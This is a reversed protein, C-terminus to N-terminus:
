SIAEKMAQAVTELSCSPHKHLVDAVLGSRKWKVLKKALRSDDAITLVVVRPRTRDEGLGAIEALVDLGRFPKEPPNDGEEALRHGGAPLIMDLLVGDFHTSRLKEVGNRVSEACEVDLSARRLENVLEPLQAHEDDIWLVRSTM